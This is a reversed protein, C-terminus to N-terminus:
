LALIYFVARKNNVSQEWIFTGLRREHNPSGKTAMAISMLHTHIYPKVNFSSFQKTVKTLYFKKLLALACYFCSPRHHLSVVPRVVNGLSSISAIPHHVRHTPQGAMVTCGTKFFNFFGYKTNHSVSTHSPYTM